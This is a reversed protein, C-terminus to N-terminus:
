KETARTLHMDTSLAVLGSLQGHGVLHFLIQSILSPYLAVLIGSIQQWQTQATQESHHSQNWM